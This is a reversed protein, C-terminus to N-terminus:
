YHIYIVTSKAVPAYPSVAYWGPPLQPDMWKFLWLADAPPVNICGHSKPRGFDDHWWAGHLAYNGRYYQVWPVEDVYWDKGKDRGDMDGSIMKWDVYQKGRATAHARPSIGDVGPSIATVYVPTGGEYAVLYGWTVRVHVWKDKPGVGAYRGAKKIVTVDPYDALHGDRMNWYWRGRDGKTMGGTAGIFTHRPWKEDTPVVNQKDDLKYKIADTLWTFALPLAMEPQKRLDIGRLQPLPKQRVKDKPILSMDPTLLWTRGQADFQQTWAVKYGSYATSKKHTLPLSSQQFHQLLAASPPRGARTTDITGGEDPDPAPIAALYDDLGPEAQRQEAATPLRLYFPAGVSVGFHFPYPADMDPLAEAAARVAPDNGDLSGHGVGGVCAWGRPEVPYWGDTCGYLQRRKFPPDDRLPVSQGNRFAGIVPADRDPKDHIKCLGGTAWVRKGDGEPPTATPSATPQASGTASGSPAPAAAGGDM